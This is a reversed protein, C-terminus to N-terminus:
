AAAALAPKKNCAPRSAEQEEALDRAYAADADANAERERKAETLGYVLNQLHATEDDADLVSLVVNNLQQIRLLAGRMAIHRQERLDLMSVLQEKLAEIEYVADLALDRRPYPVALNGRIDITSDEAM